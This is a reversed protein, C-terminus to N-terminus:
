HGAAHRHGGIRHGSRDVDDLVADCACEIFVQRFGGPPREPHIRLGAALTGQAGAPIDRRALELAIEHGAAIKGGPFEPQSL